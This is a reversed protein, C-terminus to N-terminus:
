YNLQQSKLLVDSVNGKFNIYQPTSIIEYM